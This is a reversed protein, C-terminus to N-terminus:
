KLAKTRRYSLLDRWLGTVAGEALISPHGWLFDPYGCVWHPTLPECRKLVLGTLPKEADERLAVPCAAILSPLDMKGKYGADRLTKQWRLEAWLYTLAEAETDAEHSSKFEGDKLYGGCLRDNPGYMLLCAISGAPHPGWLRACDAAIARTTMEGIYGAETLATQWDM